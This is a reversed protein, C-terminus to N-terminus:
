EGIKFTITDKDKSVENFGLWRCWKKNEESASTEMTAYIPTYKKRWKELERKSYKCLSLLYDKNVVSVTWFDFEGDDNKTLVAIYIPNGDALLGFYDVAFQEFFDYPEIQMEGLIRLMNRVEYDPAELILRNLEDRNLKRQEIM